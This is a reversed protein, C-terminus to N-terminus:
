PAPSEPLKLTGDPWSFSPDIELTQTKKWGATEHYTLWPRTAHPNQFIEVNEFDVTVGKRLLFQVLGNGWVRVTRAQVVAEGNFGLGLGLNDHFDVNELRTVTQQGSLMGNDNEFFDGGRVACQISGHASFGEDLNQCGIINEFMLGEGKGHLNFGDNLSGSAQLNRYIHHSADRIRVAFKRSSIEWGEGSVGSVLTLQNLAPDYEVKGGFRGPAEEKVRRGQHRLVFPPKVPPTARGDRFVLPEFGTIENGNGEVVIPSEATGSAPIFLEERYPGSGPALQLVDGPKLAAAAERLSSYAAPDRPDVVRTAAPLASVALLGALLHVKM